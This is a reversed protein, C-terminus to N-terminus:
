RGREIQCGGPDAVSVSTSPSRTSRVLRCRCISCVVSRIPMDFAFDPRNASSQADIRVHVDIRDLLADIGVAEPAPRVRSEHYEVARVVERSAMRHVPGAHHVTTRQDRAGRDAEVSLDRREVHAIVRRGAVRAEERRAVALVLQTRDHAHERRQGADDPRHLSGLRQLERGPDARREDPRSSISSASDICHCETRTGRSGSHGTHAPRQRWTPVARPAAPGARPWRPHRM